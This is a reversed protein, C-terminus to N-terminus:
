RQREDFGLGVLRHAEEPDDTVVLMSRADHHAAWWALQLVDDAPAATVWEGELRAPCPPPDGFDSVQVPPRQDLLDSLRTVYIRGSVGAAQALRTLEVLTTRKPDRGRAVGVTRWALVQEWTLRHEIGRRDVLELGIADASRVFGILDGLAGDDRVRRLSIRRGPEPLASGVEDTGM